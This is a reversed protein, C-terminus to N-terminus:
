SALPKWRTALSRRLCACEHCGFPLPAGVRAPLSAQAPAGRRYASGSRATTRYGTGPPEPAPRRASRTKRRRGPARREASSPGTRSSPLPMGPSRRATRRSVRSRRRTRRGRLAKAWPFAAGRNRSSHPSPLHMTLVGNRFECRVADEEVNEPLPLVTEIFGYRREQRLYRRGRGTM